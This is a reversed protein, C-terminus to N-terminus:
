RNPRRHALTLEQTLYGLQQGIGLGEMPVRAPWNGLRLFTRYQEGALVLLEALPVGLRWLETELQDHVRTAWEWIAPGTKADGLKVDYPELETDPHVLGHKASLIYWHDSNAEAYASAKRFLQSTYLDRAPAPCSLKAAACGVLGITTM